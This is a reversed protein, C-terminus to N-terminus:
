QCYAELSTNWCNRKLFPDITHEILFHHGVQDGDHEVATGIKRLDIRFIGPVADDGVGVPLNLVDIVPDDAADTDTAEHPVLGVKSGGSVQSGGTQPLACVADSLSHAIGNFSDGVEAQLLPDIGVNM